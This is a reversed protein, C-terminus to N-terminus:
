VRISEFAKKLETLRDFIKSTMPVKECWERLVECVCLNTLSLKFFMTSDEGPSSGLVLQGDLEKVSECPEMQNERCWELYKELSFKYM